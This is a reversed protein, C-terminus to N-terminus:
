VQDIFGRQHLLLHAEGPCLREPQVELGVGRACAGGRLQWLVQRALQRLLGAGIPEVLDRPDALPLVGLLAGPVGERHAGLRGLHRQPLHYTVRPADHNLDLAKSCSWAPDGVLWDPATRWSHVDQVLIGSCM